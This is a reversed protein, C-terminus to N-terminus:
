MLNFFFWVKLWLYRNAKMSAQGGFTFVSSSLSFPPLSFLHFSWFGNWSIWRAVAVQLHSKQFILFSVKCYFLLFHFSKFATFFFSYSDNVIECNILHIDCREQESLCTELGKRSEKLVTAMWYVIMLKKINIVIYQHRAPVSEISYDNM